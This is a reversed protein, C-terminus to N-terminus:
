RCQFSRSLIPCHRSHFECHDFDDDSSEILSKNRYGTGKSCKNEKDEDDRHDFPPFVSSPVVGDVSQFCSSAGHRNKGIAGQLQFYHFHRFCIFSGGELFM